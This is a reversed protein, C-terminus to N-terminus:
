GVRYDEPNKDKLWNPLKGRGSWKKGSVPDHYKTPVTTGKQPSPLGGLADVLRRTPVKYRDVVAVIQSIVSKLEEERKAKSTAKAKEIETSM